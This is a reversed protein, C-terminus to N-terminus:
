SEGRVAGRRERAIFGSLAVLLLVGAIRGAEAAVPRQASFAFNLKSSELLTAVAAVALAGAAGVAVWRPGVLRVLVLGAVAVALGVFDAFWWALALVVVIGAVQAVVHRNV